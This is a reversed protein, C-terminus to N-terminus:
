WRRWSRWPVTGAGWMERSMRSERYTAMTQWFGNHKFAAIKVDRAVDRLPGQELVAKGDLCNFVRPRFLFDGVSMSGEDQSREKLNKVFGAAALDIVGLRSTQQVITM